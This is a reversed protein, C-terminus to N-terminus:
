ALPDYAQAQPDDAVSQPYAERDAQDLADWLPVVLKRRVAMQVDLTLPDVDLEKPRSAEIKRLIAESSSLGCTCTGKALRSPGDMTSYNSSM